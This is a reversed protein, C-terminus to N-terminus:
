QLLTELKQNFEKATGEKKFIKKMLRKKAQSSYSDCRDLLMDIEKTSFHAVTLLCIRYDDRSLIGNSNVLSRFHPFIEEVEQTLSNWNKETIHANVDNFYLRFSQVVDSQDLNRKRRESEIFAVTDDLAHIHNKLQIIEQEQMSAIKRSADKEQESQQYSVRTEELLTKTQRWRSHIDSLQRRNKKQHYRFFLLSFLLIVFSFLLLFSVRLFKNYLHDNEAEKRAAIQQESNYDYLQGAQITAQAAADSYEQNKTESYLNVYKVASDTENLMAYTQYLGNYIMLENSWLPRDALAHRFCFLASDPQGTKLYFEGKVALWGGKGGTVIGYGTQLVAKEYNELEKKALSYNGLALHCQMCLISILNVYNRESSYKKRIDEGQKICEKYSGKDYLRACLKMKFILFSATDGIYLSERLASQLTPLELDPLRLRCYLEQLQSHVRMLTGWDCDAATTDAAAAAQLWTDIARPANGLDRYACGLIYLSLLQENRSGHRRYHDAVELMVSDTTFDVWAKNMAVGRMLELHIRGAKDLPKRGFVAQLVSDPGQSGFRTGEPADDYAQLLVLASDPVNFALSDLLAFRPDPRHRSSCAVAVLFMALVFPPLLSKLTM